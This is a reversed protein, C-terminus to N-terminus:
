DLVDNIRAISEDRGLAVLMDYVSPANTTGTLAARIPQLVKGLGLGNESAYTKLVAELENVGWSANELLNTLEALRNRADEDLIKAAKEDLSIPREVLIFHANDIVEPLKKAKERILPLVKRLKNETKTNWQISEVSENYSQLSDVLADDPMTRIHHQSIHDLKQFDLRAPAKNIGSLSFMAVAEDMTFLEDNGHAFGLRTLYNNMAAAPYGMERYAEVGLAGHRKSLKKGDPGLILPIHAFEPRTWGLADYILAQRAANTLHDDGRIVHTIGMDHDDVVVALMYTPTGDSRLLILDDLTENKWVVKGQVADDIETTGNQPAKLRIAFPANEPYDSRDRWPSQFPKANGEAAAQERYADIEEKTSYCRYAAGTELMEYAVDKHRPAREFQSIPPEDTDLGLWALGDIIADVAEPTHRARDTDEIRLLYKGGNVRAFLWNFLATRAGGIHLYGTPSPAFRTIVPANEPM